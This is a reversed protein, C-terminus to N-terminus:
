QEGNKLKNIQNKIKEAFEYNEEELAQQLLTNCEELTLEKEYRGELKIEFPAQGINYIKGGKVILSGENLSIVTNFLISYLSHAKPDEGEIQLTYKKTLENFMITFTCYGVIEGNDGWNGKSFFVPTLKPKQFWNTFSKIILQLM